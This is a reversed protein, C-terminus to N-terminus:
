DMRYSVALVIYGMVSKASEDKRYYGESHQYTSLEKKETTVFVLCFPLCRNINM